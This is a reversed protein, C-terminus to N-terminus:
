QTVVEPALDIENDTLYKDIPTTQLDFDPHAAIFEAAAQLTEDDTADATTLADDVFRTEPENQGFKDYLRQAYVRIKEEPTAGPIDGPFLNPPKAYSQQASAYNYWSPDSGAPDLKVTALDAITKYGRAAKDLYVAKVIPFYQDVADHLDFVFRLNEAEAATLTGDDELSDVLEDFPLAREFHAAVVTKRKVGTNARPRVAITQAVWQFASAIVFNGPDDSAATLERRASLTTCNGTATSSNSRETNSYNPPSSTLAFERGHGAATLWLTMDSGWSPTLAPPNITTSNGTSAVGAVVDSLTGTWTDADIGYVQAAAQQDASTAFNVSTGDENGVAIKVYGGFRVANAGTGNVQSFLQTFGTPTTVTAIASAGRNSFFVLLLDGANVTAPMAVAHATGATFLTVRPSSTKAYVKDVPGPFVLELLQSQWEDDGAGLYHVLVERWKAQLSDPIDPDLKTELARDILNREIAVVLAEFFETPELDLLKTLTDGHGLRVLAYVAQVELPTMALASWAIEANIQATIRWAAIYAKLLEYGVGSTRAVISLLDEREGLLNITKWRADESAGLCSSVKSDVDTYESVTVSSVKDVVLDVRQDQLAPSAPPAKSLVKGPVEVTGEKAYVILNIESADPGCDVPNEPAEPTYLIEYAGKGDSPKSGLLVEQIGATTWVVRYAQVLVGAVPLAVTNNVDGFVRYQGVPLETVTVDILENTSAGIRIPESQALAQGMSDFVRVQLNPQSHPVGNSNFATSSYSVSYTGNTGLSATGLLAESGNTV